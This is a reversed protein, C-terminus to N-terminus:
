RSGGEKTVAHKFRVRGIQRRGATSPIPILALKGRRDKVVRYHADLPAALSLTDM